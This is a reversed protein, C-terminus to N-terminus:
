LKKYNLHKSIRNLLDIMPFPKQLMNETLKGKTRETLIILPIKAQRSADIVSDSYSSPYYFTDVIVLDPSYDKLVKRFDEKESIFLSDFGELNLINVIISKLKQDTGALLIRYKNKCDIDM